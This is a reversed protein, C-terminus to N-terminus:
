KTIEDLEKEHNIASQRLSGSSNGGGAGSLSGFLNSAFQQFELRHCFVLVFLTAGSCFVFIGRVKGFFQSRRWANRERRRRAEERGVVKTMTATLYHQSM